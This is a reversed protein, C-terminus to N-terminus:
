LVTWAQYLCLDQSTIWCTCDEYLERSYNQLGTPGGEDLKCHIWCTYDEYLEWSMRSCGGKVERTRGKAKRELGLIEPTWTNWTKTVTKRGLSNQTTQRCAIGLETKIKLRSGIWDQDLETKIKLRSGIWDQDETKIKLRSRWDQDENLLEKPSSRFDGVDKARWDFEPIQWWKM